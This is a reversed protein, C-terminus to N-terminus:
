KRDMAELLHGEEWQFAGQFTARRRRGSGVRGGSRWVRPAVVAEEVETDFHFSSTSRLPTCCTDPSSETPVFSDIMDVTSQDLMWEEESCTNEQTTKKDKKDEEAAVVAAEEVENEDETAEEVEQEVEEEVRGERQRAAVEAWDTYPRTHYAVRRAVERGEREVVTTAMALLLKLHRQQRTPTAEEGVQDIALLPPMLSVQYPAATDHIHAVFIHYLVETRQRRPALALAHGRYSCHPCALAALAPAYIDELLARYHRLLLHRYLNHRGRGGRKVVEGCVRCEDTM